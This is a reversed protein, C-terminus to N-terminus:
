ADAEGRQIGIPHQIMPDHRLGALFDIHRQAHDRVIIAALDTERQEAHRLHAVPLKGFVGGPNQSIQRCQFAKASIM